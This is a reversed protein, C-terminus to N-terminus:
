SCTEYVHRFVRLEEWTAIFYSTPSFNSVFTSSIAAGVKQLLTEDTSFHYFLRGAIRYDDYPVLWDGDYDSWFPTIIAVDDLPFRLGDACNYGSANINDITQNFSLVGNTNVQM